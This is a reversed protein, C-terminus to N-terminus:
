IATTDNISSNVVKQIMMAIEIIVRQKEYSLKPVLRFLNITTPLIISSGSSVKM